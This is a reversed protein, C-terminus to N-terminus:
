YARWNCYIKTYLTDSAYMYVRTPAVPLRELERTGSSTPDTVYLLLNGRQSSPTFSEVTSDAQADLDQFVSWEITDSRWWQGARLQELYFSLVGESGLAGTGATTDIYMEFVILGNSAEGSNADPTFLASAVSDAGVPEWTFWGGSYNTRTSHGPGPNFQWLNGTLQAYAMTFVILIVFLGLFRKM